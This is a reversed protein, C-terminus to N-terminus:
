FGFSQWCKSHFIPEVAGMRQAYQLHFMKHRQSPKLSSAPGDLWIPVHIM